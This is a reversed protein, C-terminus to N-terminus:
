YDLDTKLKAVSFVFFDSLSTISDLDIQSTILENDSVYVIAQIKYNSLNMRDADKVTLKLNRLIVGPNQQMGDETQYKTGKEIEDLTFRYSTYSFKEGDAAVAPRLVRGNPDNVLALAVQDGQYVEYYPTGSGVNKKELIRYVVTYYKEATKQDMDKIGTLIGTFDLKFDFDIEHPMSTQHEYTNIGLQLLDKTEVACALDQKKAALCTNQYHDLREGGVPYDKNEIRLLNIHVDYKDQSYETMDANRFDLTLKNSWRIKGDTHNNKAAREADIIEVLDNLRFELEGDKYFHINSRNYYPDLMKRTIEDTVGPVSIGVPVTKKGEITVNTGNPLLIPEESDVETLYTQLELYKNNNASDITNEGNQKVLTWFLPLASIEFTAWVNVLGDDDAKINGEIYTRDEEGPANKGYFSIQMGPFIRAQLNTHNTLTAKKELNEFEEKSLQPSINFERNSGSTLSEPKVGAMDVTILFKEVAVDEYTYNEVVFNPNDSTGKNVTDTTQFPEDAEGHIEFGTDEDIFKNVYKNGAEDVFDSYKYPGTDGEKVVYYYVKNHDCIDILTLKTGAVFGKETEVGNINESLGVYKEIGTHYKERAAGYIYESYLTYSSDNAIVVNSSMGEKKVKDGNYVLDEMIKLHTDIMLREVVFVPIRITKSRRLTESGTEKYLTTNWFYTVTLLTFTQPKGNLGDNDFGVYDVTWKNNQKNARLSATGGTKQIQGNRIEVPETKIDTVLAMGTSYDGDADNYAGGVGTLTAVVSKVLEDATGYQTDLVVLPLMVPDPDTAGAVDLTSLLTGNEDKYLNQYVGELLIADAAKDTKVNLHYADLVAKLDTSTKANQYAEMIGTYSIGGFLTKWKSGSLSTGDLLTNGSRDWVAADADASTLPDHYIVHVRKRYEYPADLMNTTQPNVGASRGVDIVPRTKIDSNYSIKPALYYSHYNGSNMGVLNGIRVGYYGVTNERLKDASPMDCTKLASDANGYILKVQNGSIPKGDAGFARLEGDAKFLAQLTENVKLNAENGAFKDGTVTERYGILNDTLEPCYIKAENSWQTIGAFGGAAIRKNGASNVNAALIGNNRIRAYDIFTTIAEGTGLFGGVAAPYDKHNKYGQLVNGEVLTGIYNVWRAKNTGIVGGVIMGFMKNNKIEISDTTESGISNSLLYTQNSTYGAVGGVSYGYIWCNSVQANELYHRNHGDANQSSSLSGYIGGVGRWNQNRDYVLYTGTNNTGIISNKVAVNEISTNRIPCAANGNNNYHKVQAGLIGGAHNISCLIMCNEVKAGADRATDGTKRKISLKMQNRGIIGGANGDTGGSTEFVTEDKRDDVDIRMGEVKINSLNLNSPVTMAPSVATAMGILGGASSAWSRIRYQQGGLELNAQAGTDIDGKVTVDTISTERAKVCGVAGGAYIGPNGNRTAALADNGSGSSATINTNVVQSTSIVLERGRMGGILGGAGYSRWDDRANTGWKLNWRYSEIECLSVRSGTVTVGAKATVTSPSEADQHADYEGLLGGASYAGVIQAYEATGNEITLQVPMVQDCDKAHEEFRSGIYGVLGGSRGAAAQCVNRRKWSDDNGGPGRDKTRNKVTLSVQKSLSGSVSCRTLNVKVNELHASTPTPTHRCMVGIVGGVSGGYSDAKTGEGIVCENFSYTKIDDPKGIDAEIWAVIGGTNGRGEITINETRVKEIKWPRYMLGVVGATRTAYTANGDNGNSAVTGDSNRMVTSVAGTVTFDSLTYEYTNKRDLLDNFLAATHISTDYSRDIGLHIVAGNGTFNARFDSYFADASVIQDYAIGEPNAIGASFIRYTAGIGRFGRDYVAMDYTTNSMQYNMVANLAVSDALTTNSIVGNLKSVQEGSGASAFTAERGGNNNFAIYEKYLYPYDYTKDDETTANTFDTTGSAPVAGVDSYAAKRCAAIKDYGGKQYCVSFADSNIAMSVVQLQSANAVQATFHTVSGQLASTLVIKGDADLHSKVIIDYHKCIPYGADNAYIGSISDANHSLVKESYHALADDYIVCGNEVKGILGSTYIGQKDAATTGDALRGNTGNDSIFNGVQFGKASNESLNRLILSGQRINAVYAGAQIEQGNYRGVQLEVTVNDIINDGGLICAIVGSAMSRVKVIGTRTTDGKPDGGKIHLDKVVAGKAYQIFGHNADATADTYNRRIPLSITPYSGDDQKKGVIVGRFPMNETGLGLFDEAIQKDTSNSMGDLKIDEMVMYYAQSLEEQTPFDSDGYTRVDSGGNHCTKNCISGAGSRGSEFKNIKWGELYKTDNKNQLYRGLALLQKASDIQYPDEYTGCGKLIPRNKPNVEIEKSGVHESTHVYPVYDNEIKNYDWQYGGSFALDYTTGDVPGRENDWFEVGDKLEAGITVYSETYENNGYNANTGDFPSYPAKAAGPSNPDFANETFLYRLRRLVNINQDTKDELYYNRDILSAFQFIGETKRSDLKMNKFEISINKAQANGSVGILAAAAKKGTTAYETEIWSLDLNTETWTNNYNPDGGVRGILLGEGDEGKYNTLYLDKM